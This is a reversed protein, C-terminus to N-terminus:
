LVGDWGWGSFEWVVSSCSLRGGASQSWQGSISVAAESQPVSDSEGRCGEGPVAWAAVVPTRSRESVATCLAPSHPAPSPRWCLHPAGCVWTFPSSHVRGVAPCYTVTVTLQLSDPSMLLKEVCVRGGHSPWVGAVAGADLAAPGPGLRVEANWELGAAVSPARLFSSPDAWPGSGVGRAGPRLLLASNARAGPSLLCPLSALNCAASLLGTWSKRQLQQPSPGRARSPSNLQHSLVGPSGAASLQWLPLKSSLWHLQSCLQPHLLFCLGPPQAPPGWDAPGFSVGGGM